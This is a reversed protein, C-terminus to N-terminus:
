NPNPNYFETDCILAHKEMDYGKITTVERIRYQSLFFVKNFITLMEMCQDKSYDSDMKIYDAMKDLGHKSSDSHLTTLCVAGTNSVNFMYRAEEGKTEGIVFCKISMLLGNRALEKLDHAVDYKNQPRVTKLFDTNRHTDSFLEENEQIFLIKWELPLEEILANLFTTKGSGGMGVILIGTAEQIHKRMIPVMDPTLMGEEPRTLVELTKKHTPIKRISFVNSGNTNISKHIFNLRMRFDDCTTVDTCNASANRENSTINNMQCVHTFFRRYHEPNRFHFDNERWKGRVQIWVNDWDHCAIDSVAGDDYILPKLIDYNWAAACLEEYCRDWMEKPIRKEMWEYIETKFTELKKAKKNVANILTPNLKTFQTVVRQIADNLEM